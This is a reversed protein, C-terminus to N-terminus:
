IAPAQHTSCSINGPVICVPNVCTMLTKETCKKKSHLPLQHALMCSLKSAKHTHLLGCTHNYTHNNCYTSSQEAAILAEFGYGCMELLEENSSCLWQLVSRMDSNLICDWRSVPSSAYMFCVAFLFGYSGTQLINSTHTSGVRGGSQAFLMAQLVHGCNHVPNYKVHLIIHDYVRPVNGSLILCCLNHQLPKLPVLNKM